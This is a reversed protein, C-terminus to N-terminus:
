VAIVTRRGNPGGSYDARIQREPQRLDSAIDLRIHSAFGLFELKMLDLSDQHM